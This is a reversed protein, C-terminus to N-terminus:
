DTAEESRRQREKEWRKRAGARGIERYHGRGLKERTATGGAKGLREYHETGLTEKLIASGKKGAASALDPRGAFGGRKKPQDEHDM